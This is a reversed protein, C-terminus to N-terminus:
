RRTFALIAELLPKKSMLKLFEDDSVSRINKQVNNRQSLLYKIEKINWLFGTLRPLAWKINRKVMAEYIFVSLYLLLNIPLVMLLNKLNYNKIITALRNKNFHHKVEMKIEEVNDTATRKHYVIAEPIYVVKYGKLRVRLAIDMDEYGIYFKPDFEGIENLVCRRIISASGSASLIESIKEYQGNDIEGKGMTTPNGYIDMTEGVSDIRHPDNYSLLKGQALAISKDKELVKILRTLYNSDVKIDNNFFVIYEGKSAKVGKNLGQSYINESNAIIKLRSDQGFLRKCFEVSGDTSANDVLIVEFNPYNIKLISNLCPQLLNFKWGNYNSVVISVLPLQNTFSEGTSLDFM